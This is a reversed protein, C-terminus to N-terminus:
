RKIVAHIYGQWFKMYNDTEVIRFLRIKLINELGEDSWRAWFHKCRRMMESMLREIVNSTYHKIGESMAVRALTVMFHSCARIFRASRQYGNNELEKATTKLEDLTKDIRVSLAGMDKDALHKRVSNVLTQLVANMRDSAKDREEKPASDMWMMFLTDRIAHVLDLRHLSQDVSNEIEREAGSM